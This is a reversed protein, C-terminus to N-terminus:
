KKKKNKPIPKKTRKKQVPIEEESESEDSETELDEENIKKSKAKDIIEKVGIMNEACQDKIVKDRMDSMIKDRNRGLATIQDNLNDIEKYKEKRIENIRETLSNLSDNLRYHYRHKIDEQCTMILMELEIEKKFSELDNLNLNSLIYKKRAEMDKFKLEKETLPISETMYM